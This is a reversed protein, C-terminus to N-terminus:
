GLMLKADLAKTATQLVSRESPMRIAVLVFGALGLPASWFPWFGLGSLTAGMLAVSESLACALIMQTQWAAMLRRLLLKDARLVRLKPAAERFLREADPDPETTVSGSVSTAWRKMGMAPLLFSMAADALGVVCFMPAVVFPMSIDGVLQHLPYFSAACFVGSVFLLSAWLIRPVKLLDNLPSM